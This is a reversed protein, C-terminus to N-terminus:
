VQCGWCSGDCVWGQLGDGEDGHMYWGKPLNSEFVREWEELALGMDETHAVLWDWFDRDIDKMWPLTAHCLHIPAEEGSKIQESIERAHLKANKEVTDWFM